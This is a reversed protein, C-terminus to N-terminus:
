IAAGADLRATFTDANPSCLRGPRSVNDLWSGYLADPHRQSPEDVVLPAPRSFGAAYCKIMM